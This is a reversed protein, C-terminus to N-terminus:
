RNVEGERRLVEIERKVREMQLEREAVLEPDAKERFGATLIKELIGFEQLSKALCKELNVKFAARDDEGAEVTLLGSRLPKVIGVVKDVIEVNAMKKILNLDMEGIGFMEGSVRLKELFPKKLVTRVERCASILDVVVQLDREFKERGLIEGIELFKRQALMEESGFRGLNGYIEETVFPLFPHLMQLVGEFALRMVSRIEEEFGGLDLQVKAIELYWSCFVDWSFHYALDFGASIEFNLMKKKYEALTRDLEGLIWGSSSLKLEAVKPLEAGRNGIKMEVLKAANWIKNVFKAYSDVKKESFKVDQGATSGVILGARFADAGYKALIEKPEVGNGKSKSMKQGKSDRILGTFYVNKWPVDNFRYASFILMRCAWFFLIDRGMVMTNTPFFENGEIKRLDLYGLAAMTSYPWQGSSFWTDFTDTEQVWGEGEPAALGVFVEENVSEKNKYWVPMRHGWIIQRSINWDTLNELWQVIMEKLRAPYVKIKGSRVLDLARKKLSFGEKDVAVFWQTSILPEVVDKGRESIPVKHVIDEILKLKGGL